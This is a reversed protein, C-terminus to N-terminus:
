KFVFVSVQIRIEGSGITRYFWFDTLTKFNDKVESPVKPVYTNIFAQPTAM